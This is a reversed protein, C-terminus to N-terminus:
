GVPASLIERPGSTGTSERTQSPLATSLRREFEESATDYLINDYHILDRLADDLASTMEVPAVRYFKPNENPLADTKNVALIKEPAPFGLASSIALVSETMRHTLGVADLSRIRTQAIDLLGHDDGVSWKAPIPVRGSSAFTRLYYNNLTPASRVM